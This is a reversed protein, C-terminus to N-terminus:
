PMGLTQMPERRAEEEWLMWCFLFMCILSLSFGLSDSPTLALTVPLQTPGAISTWHIVGGEGQSLESLSSYGAPGQPSLFHILGIVNHLFWSIFDICM